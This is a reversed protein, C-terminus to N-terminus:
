SKAPNLAEREKRHREMMDRRKKAMEGLQQRQEPTLVNAADVLAKTYRQSVKDHQSLMKQRLTEVAAADIKPQVFQQRMQQHDARGAERLARIDTRASQMIQRIQQRQEPTAKALNLLRENFHTGMGGHRGEPGGPGMHGNQGGPGGPGGPGMRGPGRPGMGPQSAAPPPGGPAGAAQDLLSQATPAGDDAQAWAAGTWWASSAATLALAMAVQRGYIELKKM